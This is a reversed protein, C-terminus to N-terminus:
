SVRGKKSQKNCADDDEDESCRKKAKFGNSSSVDNCVTLMHVSPAEASGGTEDCGELGDGVVDPSCDQYYFCVCLQLEAVSFTM